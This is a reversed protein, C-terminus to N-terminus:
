LLRGVEKAFDLPDKANKKLNCPACAIVLNAIEHAGGRSLPTYHDIHFNKACKVGCWYCVKRQAVTWESLERTSVGGKEQSRRRASYAHIIAARKDPNAKRWAAARELLKQPDRKRYERDYERKAAKNTSAYTARKAIYEPTNKVREYHAKKGVKVSDQNRLRSKNNITYVREKNAAVYARRKAQESEINLRRRAARAANDCGKCAPQKGDLARKHALFESYDKDLKCRSCTKYPTDAM